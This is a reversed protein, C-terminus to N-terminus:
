LIESNKHLKSKSFIFNPFRHFPFNKDADDHRNQLSSPEWGSEYEHQHHECFNSDNKRTMKAMTFVNLELNIDDFNIENYNKRGDNQRTKNSDDDPITLAM